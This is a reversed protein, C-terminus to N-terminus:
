INDPYLPYYRICNVQMKGDLLAFSISKIIYTGIEGTIKSKYTILKNVQLWPVLQMELTLSDELRTTKWNEYKARQLALDQSYIKEYDEGTKVDLIEGNFPNLRDIKEVTYPSEPNVIYGINDCNYKQKYYSQKEISPMESVHIAIAHVQFQGLYFFKNNLFKFASYGNITNKTLSVGESNVIPYATLTNIKLTPSTMNAVNLKVAYTKGSELTDLDVFTANYQSGSNTCVDTYRDAVIQKGWVETVNKIKEFSNNQSESIILQSKEITQWDIVPVLNNGTPIKQCVFTNDDFFVEYGSYLTYLKEVMDYVTSGASFELDYPVSTNLEETVIDMGSGQEEGIESIIFKKVGGLQTIVGILAERINTGAAIKTTSAGGIQGNRVGNLRSMLDPCKFTITNNSSDYTYTNENFLAIGIPYYFVENNRTSKIGIYCRVYKDFWIKSIESVLYTKNILQATIDFCVRVSSSADISVSGSIISTKLTDIPQFNSNLLELRLFFEKTKQSLIAIDKQQVEYGLIDGVKMLCM